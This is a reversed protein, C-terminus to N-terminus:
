SKDYTAMRTDLTVVRTVGKVHGPHLDIALFCHGEQGVPRSTM